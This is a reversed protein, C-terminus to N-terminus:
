LLHNRNTLWFQYFSQGFYGAGEECMIMCGKADDGADHQLNPFYANFFAM